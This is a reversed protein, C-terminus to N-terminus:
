AGLGGGFGDVWENWFLYYIDLFARNTKARKIFYFWFLFCVSGALRRTKANLGAALGFPIFIKVRLGWRIFIRAKRFRALGGRIL